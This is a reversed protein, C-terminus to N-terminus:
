LPRVAEAQPGKPGQTVNFEVRQNEDLSRYGNTQIQSHHVFVDADGGDPSIFGFGKERQVVERHRTGNPHVGRHQHSPGALRPEPSCTARARASVPAFFFRGSGSDAPTMVDLLVAVAVTQRDYCPDASPGCTAM